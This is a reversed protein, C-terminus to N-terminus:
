FRDCLGILVSGLFSLTGTLPREAVTAGTPLFILVPATPAVSSELIIPTTSACPALQNFM